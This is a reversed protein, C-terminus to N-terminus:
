YVEGDDTWESGSVIRNGEHDVVVQGVGIQQAPPLGRPRKMQQQGYQPAAEPTVRKGSARAARLQAFYADSLDEEPESNDDYTEWNESGTVVTSTNSIQRVAPPPPPATAAREPAVPRSVGGYYDRSAPRSNNSNSSGSNSQQYSYRARDDYVDEPEVQRVISSGLGAARYHNAPTELEPPPMLDRMKPPPARMVPNVGRISGTGIRSEPRAPPRDPSNGGHKLNSLPM